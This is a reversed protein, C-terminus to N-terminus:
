LSLIGRPLQVGLLRRFLLFSLIAVIAAILTNKHWKKPESISLEAFLLLFAAIMYGAVNLILTYGLITIVFFSAKLLFKRDKSPIKKADTGHFRKIFVFLSLFFILVSALLPMFGPGPEKPTGIGLKLSSLFIFVSFGM